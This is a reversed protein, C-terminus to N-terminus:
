SPQSALEFVPHDAPDPLKRFYGEVVRGAKQQYAALIPQRQSVPIERALYTAAGSKTTLTVTPNARVNKVWQSEGRTSVLYRTGGVDVTVVPIQQPEETARKTVTLTETNSIGTAMAIRNFIKATFWPPKLYAM